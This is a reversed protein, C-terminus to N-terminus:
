FDEVNTANVNTYSIFTKQASVRRKHIENLAIQFSSNSSTTRRTKIMRDCSFSRSSFVKNTRGISINHNPVKKYGHIDCLNLTNSVSLDYLDRLSIGLM